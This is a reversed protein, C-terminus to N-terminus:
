ATEGEETSSPPLLDEVSDLTVIGGPARLYPSKLVYWTGVVLALTALAGGEPGFPGGTM